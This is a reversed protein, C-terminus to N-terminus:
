HVAQILLSAQVVLEQLLVFRYVPLIRCIHYTRMRVLQLALSILLNPCHTVHSDMIRRFRILPSGWLCEEILIVPYIVEASVNTGQRFIGLARFVERWFM